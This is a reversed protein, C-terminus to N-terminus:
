DIYHEFVQGAIEMQVLNGNVSIIANDTTYRIGCYFGILLTIFFAVIVCFRSM